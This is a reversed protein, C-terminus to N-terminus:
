SRNGSWRMCVKGSLALVTTILVASTAPMETSPNCHRQNCCTGDAFISQFLFADPDAGMHLATGSNGVSIKLVQLPIQFREALLFKGNQIFGCFLFHALRNQCSCSLSVTDATNQFGGDDSHRCSDSFGPKVTHFTHQRM